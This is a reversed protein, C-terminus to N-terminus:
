HGHKSDLTEALLRCADVSTFIGVLADNETVIACGIGLESMTRAVESVLTNSPVIYLDTSCADEVKINELPKKDVRGAFDIDRESLIGKIERGKRVPLHRISYDKMMVAADKLSLEEGVSHPSPTMVEKITTQVIQKM